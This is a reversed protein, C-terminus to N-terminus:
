ALSMCKDFAIKDGHFNFFEAQFREFRSITYVRSLESSGNPINFSIYTVLIQQNGMLITTIYMSVTLYLIDLLFFFFFYKSYFFLVIKM